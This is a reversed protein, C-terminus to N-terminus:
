DNQLALRITIFRMVQEAMDADKCEEIFQQEQEETLKKNTFTDYWKCALEVARKTREIEYSM